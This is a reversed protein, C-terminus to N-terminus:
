PYFFLRDILMRTTDEVMVNSLGNKGSNKLRRLIYAFFTKELEVEGKFLDGEHLYKIKLLPAVYSFGITLLMSLMTQVSPQKYREQLIGEPLNGAPVTASLVEQSPINNLKGRLLTKINFVDWRGFLMQILEGDCGKLIRVIKLISDSLSTRLATDTRYLVSEDATAPLYVGYASNKLYAIAASLERFASLEKLQNESLLDAEMSRIRTNIYAYDPM